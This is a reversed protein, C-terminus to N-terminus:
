SAGGQKKAECPACLLDSKHWESAEVRLEALIESRDKASGKLPGAKHVNFPNITQWFRKSRVLRKQCYYCHFTYRSRFEVEEFVYRAM